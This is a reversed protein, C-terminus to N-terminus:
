VPALQYTESEISLGGLESRFLLFRAVCLKASVFVNKERSLSVFLFMVIVDWRPIVASFFPADSGNEVGLLVRSYFSLALDVEVPYSTAAFPRRIRSFRLSEGRFYSVPRASCGPQGNWSLIVSCTLLTSM